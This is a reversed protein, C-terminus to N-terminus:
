LLERYLTYFYSHILSVSALAIIFFLWEAIQTLWLAVPLLIVAMFLTLMLPFYLVKRLVTWRRHKVLGKAARLSQRPQADPLTVIYMAIVSPTIMYLSWATLIFFLLAWLIHEFGTVALSNNIVTAYVTGGIIAPIFQLSIVISVLVFPILQGTSKYFALKVPIRKAHHIEYVQRLAWIVVLSMIVVLITQYTTATAQAGANSSGLLTGVLGFGKALGKEGNSALSQKTASLQTTNSLGRVLAITLVAYVATLSAFLRKNKYLVGLSKKLIRWSSPLKPGPHIPRKRFVGQKYVPAKLRRPTKRTSSQTKKATTSPPTITKVM